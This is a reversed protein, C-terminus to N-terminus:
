NNLYFSFPITYELLEAKPYDGPVAPVPDSAKVMALAAQDLIANGTSQDISSFLIHGERNIRIRVVGSGEIHAQKAQEPYIKHDEIWISILQTYRQAVEEGGEEGQMGSGNGGVSQKGLKKKGKGMAEEDGRVYQKPTAFTLDDEKPAPVDEDADKAKTHKVKAVPPLKPAKPNADARTKKPKAVDEDMASDVASQASHEHMEESDDEADKPHKVEPPAVKEQVAEEQAGPMMASTPMDDSSPGGNLKINLVRVPIKIVAEGPIIAYIAIIGAHLFLAICLMIMFHRHQLNVGFESYRSLSKVKPPAFFM